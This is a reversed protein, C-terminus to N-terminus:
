NGPQAAKIAAWQTAPRGRGGAKTQCAVLGLSALEELARDIREVTIHGHFLARLQTKSLGEPHKSMADNIRHATPDLPAGDFFLRASAQCYDWVALAAHLHCTEVIPSADLAAYLASLRLVQAEARSTAAGYADARSQSLAPYCDNWLARAEETRRFILQPQSNVWHTIRTLERVLAASQDPPVSGGEPLSQSRRASVWLCRNAFGNHCQDNSFRQVLEFQSIHGVLSIHPAIARVVHHGDHATLDSGDWACRLLASLQGSQRSLLPLVSAFEEALLFLRRDNASERASERTPERDRLSELINAPTPRITTVRQRAWAPDAEAFLEAVQRWSTGKRAKSTEGVLIVFLNLAHRTSGVLAHPNSGILNGFAALFQLLLAAPDAESHPALARVVEGALGHLAPERLTPPEEPMSPQQEFDEADDFYEDDEFVTDASQLALKLLESRRQEIDALTPVSVAHSAASM